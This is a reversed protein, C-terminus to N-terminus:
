VEAEAGDFWQHFWLYILNATIFTTTTPTSTITVRTFSDGDISQGRLSPGNDASACAMIGSEASYRHRQRLLMKSPFKIIKVPQGAVLSPLFQILLEFSYNFLIARTLIWVNLILIAWVPLTLGKLGTVRFPLALRRYSPWGASAFSRDILWGIDYVFSINLSSFVLFYNSKDRVLLHHFRM